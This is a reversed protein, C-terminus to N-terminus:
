FLQHTVVMGPINHFHQDETLVVAGIHQACAAIHLDQLPLVQGQRDLEWALQLTEKWRDANSEVYLMNEWVEQYRSLVRTSQIGRSIECTILGCVALDRTEAFAALILLPDQKNKARQIYWSSDIMVPRSM